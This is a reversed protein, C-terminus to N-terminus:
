DAGIALAEDTPRKQYHGVHCTYSIDDFQHKIETGAHIPGGGSKYRSTILYECNAPFPTPFKLCKWPTTHSTQKDEWQSPAIPINSGRWIIPTSPSSSGCEEHYLAIEFNMAGQPLSM